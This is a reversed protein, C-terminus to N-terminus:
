GHHHAGQSGINEHWFITPDYWETTLQLNDAVVSANRHKALLALSAREFDFKNTRCTALPLQFRKLEIM